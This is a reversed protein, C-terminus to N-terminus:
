ANSTQIIFSIFISHMNVFFQLNNGAELIMEFDGIKIMFVRNNTESSVFKLCIGFTISQM